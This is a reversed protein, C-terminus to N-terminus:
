AVMAAMLVGAGLLKVVRKLNYARVPLRMETSVRDLTKTLFNLTGLPHAVTQRRIRMSEPAHDLRTQRADLVAEHERCTVRRPKSPTCQDKISCTQCHSSWYRNLNLGHETSSFRWIQHQGAPCRYPASM